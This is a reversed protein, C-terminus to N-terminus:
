RAGRTARFFQRAANQEQNADGGNQGQLSFDVKVIEDGDELGSVIETNKGDTMGTQVEVEEAKGDVIKQVFTKGKRSTIALNPVTIVDTKETIIIEVASTMGSFIRESEKNMTLSAEYSVVGSQEIPTQDIEGIQGVFTKDPLADFVIRAKQGKAVKVTDIQDLLITIKLLDPNEIYVFKEEDIILNDGVKFDIKRLVGDFPARLEYKEINKRVKALALEKQTIDNKAITIREKKSQPTNRLDRKLNSLTDEAKALAYEATRLADEKKTITDKSRLETITLAELNKLSTLDTKITALQSQGASRASAISTKYTDIQTASLESGSVTNELMEYTDDTASIAKKMMEEAKELLNIVESLNADGKTELEDYLKETEQGKQRSAIYSTKARAKSSSDLAGLNNEFDDNNNKTSEEIGLITDIELLIDDAEILSNKTELLAGDIFSQYTNSSSELSDEEFIRTNELDKQATKLAKKKDNVDKDALTIEKGLTSLLTQEDRDVVNLNLKANQLNIEAQRIDNLIETKDLEAIVQDRKIREGDRFHVTAIKGILNFRLRQEDVLEAKGLVKVTQSIHGSSVTVTKLNESIAPSNEAEEFFVTYASFAVFTTLLVALLYSKWSFNLQM